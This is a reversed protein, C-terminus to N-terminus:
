GSMVTCISVRMSLRFDMTDAAAASIATAGAHKAWVAAGGAGDPVTPVKPELGPTPGAGIVPPNLEAGPENPLEAPVGPLGGLTAIGLTPLWLVNPVAGPDAIPPDDTPPEDTPPLVAGEPVSPVNPALGPTPGAGITPDGGDILLLGMTVGGVILLLGPTLAGPTSPGAGVDGPTTPPPGM